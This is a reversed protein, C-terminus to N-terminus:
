YAPDPVGTSRERLTQLPPTPFGYKSNLYYDALKTGIPAAMASGSEGLEIVVAFAIEPDGEPPGAFGTFWAHPRDRDQSNESTGTKGFVKWRELSSMYATGGPELVRALGSRLVSLTGPGIGLDTEIMGPLTTIAAVRPAPATGDGALASFFQAMRLPTQDNPGQGISLSMVESPTPSSGYEERYWDVGTPFVGANESPLDIGTPRSFGLRTGERSLQNLGLWIGLQYFYVNCSNAIAGALDLVGHGEPRWCRSYRGAYSMGGSCAIPMRSDPDIVGAELGVIATALKWTSGPAYKGAIARNILPQRPDETLETWTRREVSGTLRNPDYTPYSYLALVEGTSPVMAVVAGSYSKPFISHIFRQLGVDISLHLENGPVPKLAEKPAISGVVRGRADVEVYREGPRGGLTAEYQRELGSRGVSEGMRYGGWNVSDALEDRTIESVYGVLHAIAEGEPYHRTPFEELLLMPLESRHEQVWAAEEFDLSRSLLVSESPRNQIRDLLVNVEDDSLELEPQLLHLATRASDPSTPELHLSYSTVTEAVLEGNRDFIAGRPPPVPIVRMRNDEARLVFDHTRVVQTRFYAAGLFLQIGGILVVATVARRQKSRVTFPNQPRV